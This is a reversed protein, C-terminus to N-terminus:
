QIPVFPFYTITQQISQQNPQTHHHKDRSFSMESLRSVSGLVRKLM